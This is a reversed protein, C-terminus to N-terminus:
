NLLFSSSQLNKKTFYFVLAISISFFPTSNYSFYTFERIIPLTCCMVRNKVSFPLIKGLTRYFLVFFPKIKHLVNNRPLRIDVIRRQNSQPCVTAPVDRVVVVGFGLEVTFITKGKKVNGSCLPCKDPAIKIVMNDGQETIPSLISQIRDIHQLLLVISM